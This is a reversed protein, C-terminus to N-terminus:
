DQVLAVLRDEEGPVTIVAFRDRDRLWERNREHLDHDPEFRNLVVVIPVALPALADVTLRVSNITGLGADAVLLVLDPAVARCFALCDGDAALPSRLGGATEVLGVDGGHWVLEHILDGVTFSPRGLAQAAMPPAMAVEYWRHSACVVEPAEGSADGLVAADFGAPDDEPDFSQAPKRASVVLRGRAVGHSPACQGVDQRHRYRHRRRGRCPASSGRPDASAPPRPRFPPPHRLPHQSSASTSNSAPTLPLASLAVLLREVDTDSHAASLTVRLRSTGVPVTPPRIAPVWLGAELLAASADLAAQESGLIVPVIPSPHGPPVIGAEAMRDILAALRGTLAAGEDSRLIRLAALAAAADAPSLATSFIYSRARNVLLDVVDRSAAVFGGLAGLTKSMTGVHVVTRRQTGVSAVGARDGSGKAEGGGGTAPPLHPGLVAHAEDIVLLADHHACLSLLHELPAADGDMSFVSDTVVITPLCEAGAPSPEHGALLQELHDMDAHRYVALESRSLRCGDIISAHNLEDSLM